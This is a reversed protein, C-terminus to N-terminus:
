FWLSNWNIECMTIRIQNVGNKCNPWFIESSESPNNPFVFTFMILCFRISPDIVYTVSNIHCSHKHKWTWVRKGRYPTGIHLKHGFILNRGDITASFFAVFFIKPRVSPCVSPLVSLPLVAPTDYTLMLECIM